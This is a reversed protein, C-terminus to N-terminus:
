TSMYYLCHSYKYPHSQKQKNKNTQPIRKQIETEFSKGKMKRPEIKGVKGQKGDTERTYGARNLNEGLFNNSTSFDLNDRSPQPVALVESVFLPASMSESRWVISMEDIVLVDRDNDVGQGQKEMEKSKQTKKKM